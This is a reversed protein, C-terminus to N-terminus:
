DQQRYYIHWILDGGDAQVTGLYTLMALLDTSIASGTGFTYVDLTATPAKPDVVAWLCAVDHQIQVTLLKAGRPVAIARYRAVDTTSWLPYKYITRTSPM